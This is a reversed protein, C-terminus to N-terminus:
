GVRTASIRGSYLLNSGISFIATGILYYTANATLTVRFSPITLSTNYNGTPPPGQVLSDGAVTGTQSASNASIGATVVNGTTGNASQQAVGSIDWIGPTLAISCINVTSTSSGSSVSTGVSRIQEGLFSASPAQFKGGQITGGTQTTTNIVSSSGAVFTIESYNISGAGTITNTNSSSANCNSLYANANVSISVASASGGSFTCFEFASATASTCGHTLSTANLPACFFNTSQANFIATSGSTTIPNSIICFRIFMTGASLTNATTSAGSNTFQSYFVNLNGASSHAFIAIGTTGVDGFCNSINIASSASSSSYSIGTANLSNLYCNNLNVISALTGSVTLFAASNTQLQIGSITVSGATSLTANGSIIVKGTGNSSSDSGFASLNVGAKLSLSETYTGPRIFVTQSSSAATIAAQITTFDGQGTADVIHSVASSYNRYAM